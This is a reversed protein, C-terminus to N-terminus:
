SNKKYAEAYRKAEEPNETIKRVAEEFSAENLGHKELTQRAQDPQKQIQAGIEGLQEPTMEQASTAPTQPTEASHVESVARDQQCGAFLATALIITITMTKM